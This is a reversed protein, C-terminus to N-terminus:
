DNKHEVLVELLSILTGPTINSEKTKGFNFWLFNDAVTNKNLQINITNYKFSGGYIAKVGSPAL